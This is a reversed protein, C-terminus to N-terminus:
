DTFFASGEKIDGRKHVQAWDEAGGSIETAQFAQETVTILLGAGPKTGSKEWRIQGSLRLFAGARRCRKISPIVRRGRERWGLRDALAAWSTTVQGTKEALSALLFFMSRTLLNAEKFWDAEFTARPVTIFDASM